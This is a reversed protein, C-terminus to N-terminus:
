LCDSLPNTQRIYSLIFTVPFKDQKTIQQAVTAPVRCYQKEGAGTRFIFRGSRTCTEYRIRSGSYVGRNQQELTVGAFSQKIEVVM